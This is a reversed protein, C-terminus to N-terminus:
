KTSTQYLEQEIIVQRQINGDYWSVEAVIKVTNATPTVIAERTFETGAEAVGDVCGDDPTLTNFEESNSPVTNLCYVGGGGIADVFTEWGQFHRERRYVEIVEQAKATAVSRYKNEASNKVSYTLTAAIATLIAGVVGTAILVEIISQGATKKNIRKM